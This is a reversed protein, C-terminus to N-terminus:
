WCTLVTGIDADVCRRLILMLILINPNIQYMFKFVLVGEWYWGSSKPKPGSNQPPGPLPPTGACRTGPLLYYWVQKRKKKKCLKYWSAPVFFVFFLLICTRDFKYKSSHLFGKSDDKKDNQLILDKSGRLSLDLCFNQCVIKVKRPLTTLFPREKEAFM